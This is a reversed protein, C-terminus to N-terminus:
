RELNEIGEVEMDMEEDHPVEQDVEMADEEEGNGCLVTETPVISTHLSRSARSSPSSHSVNEGVRSNYREHDDERNQMECLKGPRATPLRTKEQQPPSPRRTLLSKLSALAIRPPARVSRDISIRKGTKGDM